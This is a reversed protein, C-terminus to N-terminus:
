DLSARPDCRAARWAPVACAALSMAVLVTAVAGYTLPDGNGVGFLLSQLARTAAAAAFAGLVLGLLTLRLGQALVLRGVQARSGGLAMRLSFEARRESVAYAMLGYIGSLALALALAAFAALLDLSFRRLALSSQYVDALTRYAAPLEPASRAMEARASELLAAPALKGRIVVSFNGAARPRQALDVYVTGRVAQDLGADRVDGVVGVVTLVRMDGDMNGYQLTRGIPDGDKWVSRALEASVLAVHPADPRDRDDFARGRLLPIGIADLYGASAVRFEAYGLTPPPHALGELTPVAAGDWFGGNWGSDTLPLATVGGVATVGPLAALRRMLDEYREAVLGAAAADAPAPLSLDLTIASDTRFGPDVDLLHLFSRGLLGVAVLLLVTLATQGVLLAARTRVGRRGLTTGRGQSQLDPALATVGLHPLLGLGLAILAALLAMAGVVRADLGLEESRPLHSGAFQALADLCLGALLLGLAFALATLLASELTTQLALRGRSAGLARRVAWEKRRGLARALTLNAGNVTAITLLFLAGAALLLLPGRVPAVLLAHMPTLAFGTADIDRGFQAHLRAGLALADARMQTLDAGTRTRAIANWNHASRSREVPLLARPLWVSTHEPFGFAPPMVGIVQLQFGYADIRLRSLDRESGLVDRWFADSVVAVHPDAGPDRDFGRGIAPVVGLVEFLNTSVAQVDGRFSRNGATVLDTGGAYQALADIGHLGTELDRLNPEALRMTGGHGDIERLAVLREAAPYPLPCLLVIDAASLIAIAAAFGLGLSLVVLAGYGPRGIVARVAKAAESMWSM